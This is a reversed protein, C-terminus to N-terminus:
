ECHGGWLTMNVKGDAFGAKFWGGNRDKGAFKGTGAISKWVGREEGPGLHWSIAQTDGEGDHRSCYGMGQLKGDSTTVLVGACVGSVNQYISDASLLLSTDKTVTLATGKGLETTEALLSYHVDQGTCNDAGFAASRFLALGIAVTYTTWTKNSINM